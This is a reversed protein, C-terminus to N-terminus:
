MPSVVIRNKIELGRINFPTFLKPIRKGKIKNDDAPKGVRNFEQPIFYPILNPSM